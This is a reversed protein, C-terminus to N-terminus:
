RSIKNYTFTGLVARGTSAGKVVVRGVSGSKAGLPYIKIGRAPLEM